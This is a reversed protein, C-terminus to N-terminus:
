LITFKLRVASISENTRPVGAFKLLNRTKADNSVRFWGFKARHKVDSYDCYGLKYEDEM